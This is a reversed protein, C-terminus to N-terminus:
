FLISKTKDNVPTHIIINGEPIYITQIYHPLSSLVFHQWDFYQVKSQIDPVTKYVQMLNM